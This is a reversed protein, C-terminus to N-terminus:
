VTAQWVGGAADLLQDDVDVTLPEDVCSASCADAARRRARAPVGPRATQGVLPELAASRSRSPSPGPGHVPADRGDPSRGALVRLLLDADGRLSPVVTRDGGRLRRGRARDDRVAGRPGDFRVVLGHLQERMGGDDRAARRVWGAIEAVALRPGSVETASCVKPPHSPQSATLGFLAGGAVGATRRSDPEEAQCRAPAPAQGRDM